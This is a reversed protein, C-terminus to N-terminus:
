RKRVPQAPEQEPPPPLLHWSPSVIVGMLMQPESVPTLDGETRTLRSDVAVCHGVWAHDRAEEVTHCHYVEKRCARCFRVRAEGESRVQLTEWRQPCAFAFRLCNEVPARDLRAVWDVDLTQSLQELRTRISERQEDGSPLGELQLELRLFEGRPDGQEDL